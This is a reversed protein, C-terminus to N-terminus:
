CKVICNGSSDRYLETVPPREGLLAEMTKAARELNERYRFMLILQLNRELARRSVSRVTRELLDSDLYSDFDDIIVTGGDSVSELAVLMYLLSVLSTEHVSLPLSLVIDELVYEDRAEVKRFDLLIERNLIESLARSVRRKLQPDTLIHIVSRTFKTDIGPRVSYDVINRVTDVLKINRELIKPFIDQYLVIFEEKDIVTIRPFVVKINYVSHTLYHAEFKVSYRGENYEKCVYAFMSQLMEAKPMSTEGIRIGTSLVGDSISLSLEISFDLNAKIYPIRLSGEMELKTRKTVDKRPLIEDINHVSYDLDRILPALFYSKLLLKIAHVITSKGSGAHGYILAFRPFRIEQRTEFCKFNEIVLRTIM